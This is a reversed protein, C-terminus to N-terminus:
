VQGDTTVVCNRVQGQSRTRPWLVASSVVAESDVLAGHGVVVEPGVVAGECVVADAEIRVPAIIRAGPHVKAGPAIGTLPGPPNTLLQPQRLLDLNGALYREPTSHEAFYGPLILARIDAGERLAPMYGTRVSDSFVPRLRRLIEPGLIQIGTFMREVVAGRAPRPSLADLIAVVRGDVDAAIAGWSRAAPDDRLVLTADAGSAQHAAIVARLDIDAVVKANMVLVPGEGLLHGAHALGGGTGLLETEESFAVRTGLTGGVADDSLARRILDGHHHLNVVVDEIGARACAKLGFLIAPYGCIPVLAKPLTQGLAGLRTGRGAALLMAKM